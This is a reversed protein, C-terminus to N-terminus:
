WVWRHFADKVYPTYNEIGHLKMSNTENETWLLPPQEGDPHSGMYFHNEGLTEHKGQVHGEGVEKLMPKRTCGEHKFGWIWTNRYWLTPLLHLRATESGRNCVTIRILIDMPSAKAYEAFVDWYKGEEFVGTGELEFEPDHAGRRRNEEVLRAYPYEAQPYKYLAKMYSHTPTSDLYYYCEKPDEGHNGESGTLGFIREKLIPDKENWLALAFCLRCQRDCIGLLGDEGWRYARSRAHDHPLYDWSCPISVLLIKPATAFFLDRAVSHLTLRSGHFRQGRLWFPPTWVLRPENRMGPDM